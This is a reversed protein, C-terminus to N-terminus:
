KLYVSFGHLVMLASIEGIFHNNGVLVFFNILMIKQFSFRYYYMIQSTM